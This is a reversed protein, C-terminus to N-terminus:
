RRKKVRGWEKGSFADKVGVYSLLSDTVDRREGTLILTLFDIFLSM